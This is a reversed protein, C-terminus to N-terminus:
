ASTAPPTTMRSILDLNSLMARRISAAGPKWCRNRATSYLVDAWIRIQRLRRRDSESLERRALLENLLRDLRALASQNGGGRAETRVRTALAEVLETADMADNELAMTPV